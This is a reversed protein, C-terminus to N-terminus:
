RGPSEATSITRTVEARDRFKPINGILSLFSITYELPRNHEQLQDWLKPICSILSIDILIHKDRGGLRSESALM